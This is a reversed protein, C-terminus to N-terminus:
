EYDNGRISGVMCRAGGKGIKEIKMEKRGESEKKHGRAYLREALTIQPGFFVLNEPGV